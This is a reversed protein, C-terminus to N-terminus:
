NAQWALPVSSGAWNRMEVNIVASGKRVKGVQGMHMEGGMTRLGLTQEGEIEM